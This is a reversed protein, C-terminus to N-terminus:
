ALVAVMRKWLDETMIVSSRKRKGERQYAEVVVVCVVVLLIRTVNKKTAACGPRIITSLMWKWYLPMNSPRNIADIASM